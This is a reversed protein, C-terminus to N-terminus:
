PFVPVFVIFAAPGTPYKIPVPTKGWIRKDIATAATNYIM